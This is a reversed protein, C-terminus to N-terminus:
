SPLEMEAGMEEVESNIKRLECDIDEKTTSWREYAAILSSRYVNRTANHPASGLSTFWREQAAKEVRHTEAAAARLEKLCAAYQELGERRFQRCVNLLPAGFRNQHPVCQLDHMANIGALLWSFIELRLEVAIGMLSPTHTM